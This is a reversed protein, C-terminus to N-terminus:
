SSKQVASPSIQHVALAVLLQLISQSLIGHIKLPPTDPGMLAVSAQQAHPPPSPCDVCSVPAGVLM